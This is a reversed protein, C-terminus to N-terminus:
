ATCIAQCNQTPWVPSSSKGQLVEVPELSKASNAVQGRGSQYQLLESKLKLNERHLTSIDFKYMESLQMIRLDSREKAKQWELTEELVEKFACDLRERITILKPLESSECKLQYTKGEIELEFIAPPERYKSRTMQAQTLVANMKRLKINEQKLAIMANPISLEPMVTSTSTDVAGPRFRKPKCLSSEKLELINLNELDQAISSETSISDTTNQNLIEAYEQTGQQFLATLEQVKAELDATRTQKISMYLDLYDLRYKLNGKEKAMVRSKNKEFKLENQASEFDSILTRLKQLSVLTKPTNEEEMDVAPSIDQM